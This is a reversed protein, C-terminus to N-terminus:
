RDPGLRRRQSDIRSDVAADDIDVVDPVSLQVGNLTRHVSVLRMTNGATTGTNIATRFARASTLLSAMYTSALSTPSEIHSTHLPGVYTRPHGGRYHRAIKWTICACASQPVNLSSSGPTGALPVTAEAGFLGILDVARVSDGSWTGNLRPAINTEYATKVLNAIYTVDATSMAGGSWKVHFVNVIAAGSATGRVACRAVGPVAAQAPM